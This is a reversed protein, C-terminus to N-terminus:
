TLARTPRPPAHSRQLRRLPDGEPLHRHRDYWACARACVRPAAVAPHPFGYTALAEPTRDVAPRVGVTRRQKLAEQEPRSDPAEPEPESHAALSEGQLREMGPQVSVSGPAAALQLGILLVLALVGRSSVARVARM